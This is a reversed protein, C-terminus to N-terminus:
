LTCRTGSGMGAQKSAEVALSDPAQSFTSVMKDRPRHVSSSAMLTAVPRCRPAGRQVAWLHWWQPSSTSLRAVNSHLTGGDVHPLSHCGACPVQQLWSVMGDPAMLDRCNRHFAVQRCWLPRMSSRFNSTQSAVQGLVKAGTKNHTHWLMSVVLMLMAVSRDKDSTLM